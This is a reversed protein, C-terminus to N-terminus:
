RPSPSPWQRRLDTGPNWFDYVLVNDKKSEDGGEICRTAIQFFNLCHTQFINGQFIPNVQHICSNAAIIQFKDLHIAHVGGTHGDWGMWHYTPAPLKTVELDEEIVNEDLIENMDWFALGGDERDSYSGFGLVLRDSNFKASLIGSDYDYNVVNHEHMWAQDILITRLCTEEVADHFTILTYPRGRDEFYEFYGFANSFFSMALPYRLQVSLCKCKAELFNESKRAFDDLLPFVKDLHSMFDAPEDDHLFNEKPRNWVHMMLKRTQEHRVVGIVKEHGQDIDICDVRDGENLAYVKKM